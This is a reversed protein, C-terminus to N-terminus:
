IEDEDKQFGQLVELISEVVSKTHKIKLILDNNDPLAVAVSGPYYGTISDYVTVVVGDKKAIFCFSGGGLDTFTTIEFGISQLLSPAIYYYRNRTELLKGDKIRLIHVSDNEIKWTYGQLEKLWPDKDPFILDENFKKKGPKQVKPENVVNVVKTEENVEQPVVVNNQSESDESILKIEKEIESEINSQEELLKALDM